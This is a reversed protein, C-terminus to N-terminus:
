TQRQAQWPAAPPRRGALRRRWRGLRVRARRATWATLYALACGARTGFPLENRWLATLVDITLRVHGTRQSPWRWRWRQSRSAHAPSELIAAVQAANRRGHFTSEGHMRRYFLREPIAHLTGRQALEAVMRIDLHPRPKAPDLQDMLRTRRLVDTRMVGFVENCLNWRSAFQAVRVPARHDRLDLRDDWDEIYAGHEDIISTLPFALVAAPGAEDLAKVCASLLTPAMLDDHSTYRFYEGTALEVVRRYNAAFGINAPNQYVRLRADRAAYAQCIQWTRDTSVNDCVVIEFDTFDQALVADLAVSLYREVNYTTVGITLKPRRM